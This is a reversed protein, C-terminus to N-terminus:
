AGATPTEHRLDVSGVIEAAKMPSWYDRYSSIGEPGVTIVAIYPMTFANGSAVAFGASVFEVVVTRPNGTQHRTEMVIERVDVIDTYHALYDSVADRGDIRSPFDAAGMPFEIWGDPAFLGAFAAMDHDVLHRLASDVVANTHARQAADSPTEPVPATM